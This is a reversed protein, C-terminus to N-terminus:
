PCILLWPQEPFYSPPRIAHYKQHRTWCPYGQNVSYGFASPQAIWWSIGPQALLCKCVSGLPASVRRGPLAWPRTRFFGSFMRRVAKRVRLVESSSDTHYFELVVHWLQFHKQLNPLQPSHPSAKSRTGNPSMCKLNRQYCTHICIM